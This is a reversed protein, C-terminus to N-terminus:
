PIDWTPFSDYPTMSGLEQTTNTGLNYGIHECPAATPLGHNVM